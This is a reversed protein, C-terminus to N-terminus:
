LSRVRRYNPAGNPALAEFTRNLFNKVAAFTRNINQSHDHSTPDLVYIMPFSSDSAM